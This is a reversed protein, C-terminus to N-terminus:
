GLGSLVGVIAGFALFPAFAIHRGFVARGQVLMLALVFLASAVCGMTVVPLVDSGFAAGLLLMLKVDGMGLAGRKLAALVFFFGGAAVAAAIWEVAHDPSIAIHAVLVFGAAPVVIRNPILRHEVDLASLWVLLASVGALLVGEATVGRLLLASFGVSSGLMLVAARHTPLLPTPRAMAVVTSM